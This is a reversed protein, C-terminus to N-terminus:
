TTSNMKTTNLAYDKFKRLKNKRLTFSVGKSPWQFTICTFALIQFNDMKVKYVKWVILLLVTVMQKKCSISTCSALKILFSSNWPKKRDQLFICQIYTYDSSHKAWHSLWAKRSQTSWFINDHHRPNKKKKKEQPRDIKTM